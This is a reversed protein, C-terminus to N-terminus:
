PKYIWARNTAPLGSDGDAYGGTILAKGDPLLTASAFCRSGAFTGGAPTFAGTSEDYVEAFRGGGAILARGGKLLVVAEPLKFRSTSM